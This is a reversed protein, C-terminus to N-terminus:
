LRPHGPGKGPSSGTHVWPVSTGTSDCVGKEQPGGLPFVHTPSSCASPKVELSQKGGQWRSVKAQPQRLFSLIPFVTWVDGGAVASTACLPM